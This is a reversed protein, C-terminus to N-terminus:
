INGDSVLKELSGLQAGRATDAMKQYSEFMWSPLRGGDQFNFFPWIDADTRGIQVFNPITVCIPVAFCV